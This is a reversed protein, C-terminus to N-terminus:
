LSHLSDLKGEQILLWEVYNICAPFVVVVYHQLPDLIRCVFVLACCENHGHEVKM